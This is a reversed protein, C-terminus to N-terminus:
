ESLNKNTSFYLKKIIMGKQINNESCACVTHAVELSRQVLELALIGCTDRDCINAAM